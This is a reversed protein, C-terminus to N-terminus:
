FAIKRKEDDLYEFNVIKMEPPYHDFVKEPWEIIVLNKKDSIIEEYGLSELDDINNLRYADIHILNRDKGSYSKMIVFTPSTVNKEIGLSHAVGKAFSTKGSGLDGVFGVLNVKPNEQLFKAALNETDLLSKSTYEM